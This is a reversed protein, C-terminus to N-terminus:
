DFASGSYHTKSFEPYNEGWKKIHPLGNWGEPLYQAEQRGRLWKLLQSINVTHGRVVQSDGGGCSHMSSSEPLRVIGLTTERAASGRGVAALGLLRAQGSGSAHNVNVGTILGQAWHPSRRM